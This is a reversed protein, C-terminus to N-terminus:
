ILRAMARCPRRDPSAFPTPTARMRPSRRGLDPRRRPPGLGRPRAAAPRQRADPAPQGPSPSHALRRRSRGANRPDDCRRRRNRIRRPRALVLDLHPSRCRPRVLASTSRRVRRPRLDLPPRFRCARRLEPHRPRGQRLDAHGPRRSRDDPGRGARYVDCPRVPDALRGVSPWAGERRARTCLRQFRAREFRRPRDRHAQHRLDVPRRSRRPRAPRPGIVNRAGWLDAIKLDVKLGELRNAGFAMRDSNAVIAVAQRGDAASASVNAQLAGSM